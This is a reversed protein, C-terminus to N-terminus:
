LSEEGPPCTLNPFFLQSYTELEELSRFYLGTNLTNLGDEQHFHHIYYEYGGSTGKFLHTRIGNIECSSKLEYPAYNRLTFEYYALMDNEYDFFDPIAAEAAFRTEHLTVVGLCCSEVWTVQTFTDGNTVYGLYWNPTVGDLIAQVEEVWAFLEDVSMPAFEPNSTTLESTTTSTDTYAVGLLLSLLIIVIETM